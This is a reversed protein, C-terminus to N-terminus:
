KEISSFAKEFQKTTYKSYETEKGKSDMYEMGLQKLDGVVIGYQKLLYKVKDDSELAEIEKFWNYYPSGKGFGLKKFDQKNKFAMLEEYLPHIQLLLEDALEKENVEIVKVEKQSDNVEIEPNKCSIIGTILTILIFIKRM